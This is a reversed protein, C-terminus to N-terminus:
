PERLRESRDVAQWVVQELRVAHARLFCRCEPFPHVCPGPPDAGGFLCTSNGTARRVAQSHRCLGGLNCCCTLGGKDWPRTHDLDGRWAPQGCFPYRCTLDRATVYERIPPPPRYAASALTHACGGATDRDTEALQAAQDRARTATRPIETLIGGSGAAPAPAQDLAAAPLTVTVRGVLGATGPQQLGPPLHGPPIRGAATAHGHQDTLIVRWATAHGTAAIRALHRAQAATVPGIRGIRGPAASECTLTPWPVALDLLGATPRGSGAAGAPGGPASSGPAAPIAAPVVPWAPV